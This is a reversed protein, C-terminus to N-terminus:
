PIYWVPGGWDPNFGNVTPVYELIGQDVLIRLAFEAQAQRVGERFIVVAGLRLPEDPCGMGIPHQSRKCTECVAM